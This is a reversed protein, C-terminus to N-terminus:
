LQKDIQSIVESAKNYDQQMQVDTFPSYRALECNKLLNIFSETAAIDVNKSTLLSTIKEKSFESTEIKLKAKLYNHLAKELAIYFNAENGLEKKATSLYKRALRNAKKVKNGVVDQEKEKRKRYLVIFLPILLLPALLMAYFKNSGFFYSAGISTLNPKVKIFHFQKGTPVVLKQNSKNAAISANTDEPGEMVNITIEDSNLTNYQGTKPNFYSFSINPIPYKGRFSPVVTYNNAVKGQMGSLTTRVSEDFEPEYVELASPLEPKPLQFLKLNGKGTVEVRAQLSESANLSKKSTTVSFDFDGVAGGFDAPKGAEPLSKVNLTRKGASVTKKADKFIKGGFFDRRNTPVQVYVELALPEISLKGTKQPYLVVRKLIVSRFPKGDYTTNKTDYRKVPIDQSWFNNYKPNDLPRFNSVTISPSIFLKYVVTVAENLYPSGKSVEAVLYLNEDAIDDATKPANPNAVAATIQVKKPVTKYTKGDIEITAQGIEFNGTATPTVIYSYSKSFSRKGNIWSSSISQSPGMVVKFGKFNPPNFNDGDKNMTFDVRLRENVGLKNKSLKIEFTIEDQAPTTNGLLLVPLLLLLYTFFPSRM